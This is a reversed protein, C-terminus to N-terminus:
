GPSSEQLAGARLGAPRRAERASPRRHLGAARSECRREEERTPEAGTEGSGWRRRQPPERGGQCEFKFSARVQILGAQTSRQELIQTCLLSSFLTERAMSTVPSDM